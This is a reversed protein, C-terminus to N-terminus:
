WTLDAWDGANLRIFHHPARDLSLFTFLQRLVVRGQPIVTVAHSLDSTYWHLTYRSLRGLESDEHLCNYILAAGQTVMYPMHLHVYQM